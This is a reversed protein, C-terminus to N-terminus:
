WFYWHKQNSKKPFIETYCKQVHRVSSVWKLEGLLVLQLAHNGNAPEEKVNM